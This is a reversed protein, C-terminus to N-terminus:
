KFKLNRSKKKSNTKSKIKDMYRYLQTEVKSAALDIAKVLDTSSEKSTIVRDKLKLKLECHKEEKPPKDSFLVVDAFLIQDNYKTLEELREKIHARVSENAKFNRSTINIKM